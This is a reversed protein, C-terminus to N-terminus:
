IINRALRARRFLRYACSVHHFRKIYESRFPALKGIRLIGKSIVKNCVKFKATGNKSYDVSFINSKEPLKEDNGFDESTDDNTKNRLAELIVSNAM